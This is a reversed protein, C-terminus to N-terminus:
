LRYIHALACATAGTGCALTEDEVGREYTLVEILTDSIVKVLNVNTGNISKFEDSYRIKRGFDIINQCFDFSIYHPSGTDVFFDSGYDKIPGYQKM